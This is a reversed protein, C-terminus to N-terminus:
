ASQAIRLCLKLLVAGEIEVHLLHQVRQPDGTHLMNSHADVPVAAAPDFSELIHRIKRLNARSQALSTVGGRVDRFDHASIDKTKETLRLAQRLSLPSGCGPRLSQM